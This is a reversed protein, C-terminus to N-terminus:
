KMIRKLSPFIGNDNWTCYLQKVICKIYLGVLAVFYVFLFGYNTAIEDITEYKLLSKHLNLLVFTFLGFILIVSFVIGVANLVYYKYNNYSEIKKINENESFNMLLQTWLLRQNRFIGTLNWTLGLLTGLIPMVILLAKSNEINDSYHNNFILPIIITSVTYCVIGFIQVTIIQTKYRNTVIKYEEETADMNKYENAYIYVNKAFYHSAWIGFIVALIIMLAFPLIVIDRLLSIKDPEKLYFNTFIGFMELIYVSILTEFCIHTLNVFIFRKVLGDYKNKYIYNLMEAFNDDTKKPFMATRWSKVLTSVDISKKKSM